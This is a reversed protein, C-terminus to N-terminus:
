ADVTRSALAGLSAADFAARLRRPDAAMPSVARFM